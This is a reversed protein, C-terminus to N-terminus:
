SRSATATSSSACPEFTDAAGSLYFLWIRRFKESFRISDIARIRDRNAELNRLWPEVTRHRLYALPKDIARVNLGHKEMSILTQALSPSGGKYRGQVCM